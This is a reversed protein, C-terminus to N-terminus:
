TLKIVAVIASIVIGIFGSSIARWLWKNNDEIKDLRHHASKASQMAERAIDDSQDLKNVLRNLNDAIDGISKTNNAQMVEMQGVKVAIDNLIKTEAASMGEGVGLTTMVKDGKLHLYGRDARPM